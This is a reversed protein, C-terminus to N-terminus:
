VVVFIDLILASALVDFFLRLCTFSINVGPLDAMPLSWACASTICPSNMIIVHM